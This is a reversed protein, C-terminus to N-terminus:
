SHRDAMMLADDISPNRHRAADDVARGNQSNRIIILIIHTPNYGVYSHGIKFGLIFPQAIHSEDPYNACIAGLAEFFLRLSKGEPGIM